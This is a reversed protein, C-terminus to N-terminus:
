SRPRRGWRPITAAIAACCLLVGASGFGARWPAAGPVTAASGLADTLGPLAAPALWGVVLAAGMICALAVIRRPSALRRVFPGEVRGTLWIAAAAVFGVLTWIAIGILTLVAFGGWLTYIAGPSLAGGSAAWPMVATVLALGTLTLAFLGLAAGLAARRRAAALPSGTALQEPTVGTPEDPFILRQRPEVPASTSSALRADTQGLLDDVVRGDAVRRVGRIVGVANLAGGAVVAVLALWLMPTVGLAWGGLALFPAMLLVAIGWRVLDATLRM